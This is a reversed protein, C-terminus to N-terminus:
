CENDKVEIVETVKIDRQILKYLELVTKFPLYNILFNHVNEADTNFDVRFWVENEKTM